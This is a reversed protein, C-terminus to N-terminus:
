LRQDLGGVARDEGPEQRMDSPGKQRSLCGRLLTPLCTGSVIDTEFILLFRLCTSVLDEKVCVSKTPFPIDIARSSILPGRM